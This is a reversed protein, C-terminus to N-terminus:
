RREVTRKPQRGEENHPELDFQRSPNSPVIIQPVFSLKIDQLIEKQKGDPLKDWPYTELFEDFTDVICGM